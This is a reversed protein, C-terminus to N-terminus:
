QHYPLRHTQLLRTLRKLIYQYQQLLSRDMLQHLHHNMDIGLIYLDMQMLSQDLHLRPHHNMYMGLM